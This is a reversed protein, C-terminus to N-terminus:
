PTHQRGHGRAELQGSTWPAAIKQQRSNWSQPNWPETVEKRHIVFHRGVRLPLHRSFNQELCVWSRGQKAVELTM